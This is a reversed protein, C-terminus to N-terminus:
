GIRSASLRDRAKLVLEQAEETWRSCATLHGNKTRTPAEAKGIFICISMPFKWLTSWEPEGGEWLDGLLNGHRSSFSARDQGPAHRHHSQYISSLSAQPAPRLVTIDQITRARRL